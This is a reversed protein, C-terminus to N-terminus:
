FRGSITNQAYGGLGAMFHTRIGEKLKEKLTLQRNTASYAYYTSGYYQGIISPTPRPSLYVLHCEPCKVLYHPPDGPYIGSLAELFRAAKAGGCLDCEATEWGETVRETEPDLLVQNM